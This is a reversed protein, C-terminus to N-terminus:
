SPQPGPGTSQEVHKQVECTEDTHGCGPCDSWRTLEQLEMGACRTLRGIRRVKYHASFNVPQHVAEPLGEHMTKLNVTRGWLDKGRVSRYVLAGDGDLFTPARLTAPINPPYVIEALYQDDSLHRLGLADRLDDALQGPKVVERLSEIEATKTVWAVPLRGTLEGKALNKLGLEELQRVRREVDDPIGWGANKLDINIEVLDRADIVRSCNAPEPQDVGQCLFKDPDLRVIEGVISEVRPIDTGTEGPTRAEWIKTFQDRFARFVGGPIRGHRCDYVINALVVRARVPFKRRFTNCWDRFAQGADM